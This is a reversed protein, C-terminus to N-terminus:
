RRKLLKKMLKPRRKLGAWIKKPRKQIEATGFKDLSILSVVAELDEYPLAWIEEGNIGKVERSFRF